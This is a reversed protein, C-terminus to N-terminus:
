YNLVQHIDLKRHCSSYLILSYFHGSFYTYIFFCVFLIYGITFLLYLFLCACVFHLRYHSLITFESFQRYFPLINMMNVKVLVINTFLETINDARKPAFPTAAVIMEHILIGVSWIDTSQDHGLNFIMEPSM